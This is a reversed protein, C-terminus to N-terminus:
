SEKEEKVTCTAVVDVGTEAINEVIIDGMFVPLEVSVRKLQKVVDFIKEKPVEKKTKCPVQGKNKGKIPVSTTVVRTPHTVEKKAYAEGRPCTNNFVLIRNDEQIEVEMQCGIPCVICTLERKEM